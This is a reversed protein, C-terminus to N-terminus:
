TLWPTGHNIRCVRRYLCGAGSMSSDTVSQMGHPEHLYVPPLSKGLLAASIRAPAWQSPILLHQEGQQLNANCFPAQGELMLGDQLDSSSTHADTHTAGGKPSECSFELRRAPLGEPSDSDAPGKAQM